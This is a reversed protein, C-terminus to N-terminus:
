RGRLIASFFERFNYLHFDKARIPIFVLLFLHMATILIAQWGNDSFPRGPLVAAVIIQAITFAETALIFIYGIRIYRILFLGGLVLLFVAAASNPLGSSQTRGFHYVTASSFFLMLAEFFFVGASVGPGIWTPALRQTEQRFSEVSVNATISEILNKITKRISELGPYKSFFYFRAGEVVVSDSIGFHIHTESEPSLIKWPAAPKEEKEYKGLKFYDTLFVRFAEPDMDDGTVFMTILKEPEMESNGSSKGNIIDVRRVKGSAKRISAVEWEVPLIINCLAQLHSPAMPDVRLKEMIETKDFKEDM